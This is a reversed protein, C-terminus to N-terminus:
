RCGTRRWSPRWCSSPRSAAPPPSRSGATAARLGLAARQLEAAELAEAPGLTPAQQEDAFSFLDPQGSSPSPIQDAPVGHLCAWTYRPGGAVARVAAPAGGRRGLVDDAAGRRAVLARATEQSWVAWRPRIERDAPLLQEPTTALAGDPVAVAVSGDPEVALGVLGGPSVQHARLWAM